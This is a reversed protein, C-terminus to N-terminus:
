GVANLQSEYEAASEMIEWYEVFPDDGRLYPRHSETGNSCVVDDHWDDNWSEDYVCSWSGIGLTERVRQDSERIAEDIEAQSPERDEVPTNVEDKYREYSPMENDDLESSGTCATLALVSILLIAAAGRVNKVSDGM